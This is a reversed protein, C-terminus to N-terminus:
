VGIGPVVGANVLLVVVAVFLVTAVCLMVLRVSLGSIDKDAADMRRLSILVAPALVFLAAVVAVAAM